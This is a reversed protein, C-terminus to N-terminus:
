IFRATQRPELALRGGLRLPVPCSFGNLSTVRGLTPEELITIETSSSETGVLVGLEGSYLCRSTGFLGEVLVGFNRILVLIGIITGGRELPAVLVMVRPHLIRISFGGECTGASENIEGIETGRVNAFTRRVSGTLTLNCSIRTGGATGTIPGRATIAGGPEVQISNANATVTFSAMALLMGVAILLM